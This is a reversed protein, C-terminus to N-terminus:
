SFFYKSNVLEKVDFDGKPPVKSIRLPMFIGVTSKSRKTRKPSIDIEIDEETEASASLDHDEDAFSSSDHEAEAVHDFGSGAHETSRLVPRAKSTTPKKVTAGQAILQELEDEPLEEIISLPTVMSKGREVLEPNENPDSNLLQFREKEIVLEDKASLKSVGYEAALKSRANQIRNAVESDAPIEAYELMGRYRQVFENRLQEILDVEHLRIFASRLSKNMEDVDAAHTWYSDHVSAFDMGKKGCEAASLLMHTADLSHIYNPPFATRQKRPNVGRMAYPDSLFVSQLKTKIQTKKDERYPQVIPLGVPTTWIVSSMFNPRKGNKITVAEIDLRVSKSIKSATEGLWDQILHAGEFLSRVALFVKRALYTSAPYVKTEDFGAIDKLQNAIQARAGIFTVGYVNTMVTQKIVKRVLKDKLLIALENGEEADKNVYVKVISLVKSYVDQPRDSPVLNVQRAGETDGGLAAYHQLGNCTGDQHVPLHSVFETPDPLSMAENLELCVALTQWPDEAKMWWQNGNIPNEASDFIEEMHMDIFHEREEFSYKDYGFVNAAHIKLWKLGNKGLKRGRWFKLLSRSLDDGLHNLHPSLPYARGRFDMNHPLYFREGLFARAIELKYNASCRESYSNQHEIHLKRCVRLWDRRVSPDADRPPAPPLVLESQAEPINLFQKGGNWVQTIIKFLDTNITWATEGLVNLGRYVADIDHRESAAKLYALQEPADKVRMIPVSSYLYGGNNYSVWPKPKIIMPLLQPQLFSSSQEGTIFKSLYKHVKLVGLRTGGQYQYGHYFAPAESKVTEGTVPDNGYVPVKAVHLLLSILLSGIKARITMPWATHSTTLESERVTDKITSVSSSNDQNRSIGGLANKERKSTQSAKYEAEVASGVALVARGTRMGELIGGTSTLKLLELMTLIGLKEPNVLMLYPGYEFRDGTDVSVSEELNNQRKLRNSKQIHKQVDNRTVFKTTEKIRAMEEEILPQLEQNWRWLLAEFPKLSMVGKERLKDYQIKWTQKAAEFGKTEMAEQRSINFEHFAREFKESDEPKILKSIKFYDIFSESNDLAEPPVIDSIANVFTKTAEDSAMGTLSHRIASLNTTLVAKLKDAGPKHLTESTSLDLDKSDEKKDSEPAVESSAADPTVTTAKESNPDNISHIIDRYRKVIRAIVDIGLVDVHRFIQESNKGALFENILDVNFDSAVCINRLLIAYTVSSKKFGRIKTQIQTLWAQAVDANKENVEAFRLLYNNVAMAIDNPGCHKSFNILVDQARTFNQTDLCAELLTLLHSYDKTYPQIGIEDNPSSWSTNDYTLTSPATALRASPPPPPPISNVAADFSSTNLEVSHKGKSQFLRQTQILPSRRLLSSTPSRHALVNRNYSRGLTQLAKM